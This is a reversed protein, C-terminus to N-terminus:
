LPFPFVKGELDPLLFMLSNPKLLTDGTIVQLEMTKQKRYNKQPCMHM